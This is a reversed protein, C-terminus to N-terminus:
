RSKSSRPTNSSRPTHRGKRSIKRKTASKVAGAFLSVLLCLSIWDVFYFAVSVAENAALNVLIAKQVSAVWLCAGTFLCCSSGITSVFLHCRYGGRWGDTGSGLSSEKLMRNLGLGSLLIMFCVCAYIVALIYSGYSVIDIITSVAYADQSNPDDDTVGVAIVIAMTILFVSVIAIIFPIRFRAFPNAHMAFLQLSVWALLIHTFISLALFSPFLGLFVLGAVSNIVPKAAIFVIRFAVALLVVSHQAAHIRCARARLLRALQILLVFALASYLGLLIYDSIEAQCLEEVDLESRMVLAFVTLHECECKSGLTFLGDEEGNDNNLPVNDATLRCGSSQFVGTEENLWECTIVPQFCKSTRYMTRTVPNFPLTFTYMSGVEASANVTINFLPSIVLPPSIIISPPLNTAPTPQQIAVLTTTNKICASELGSGIIVFKCLDVTPTTPVAATPAKSTPSLTPGRSTPSSTPGQSTPSSSTPGSTPSSSPEFTSPSSSPVGTSATPALTPVPECGYTMNGSYFVEGIYGTGCQCEGASGIYVPALCNVNACTTANYSYEGRPCGCVNGGEASKKMNGLCPNACLTFNPLICRDCFLSCNSVNGVRWSSFDQSTNCFRFMEHMDKIATTSISLNSNFATANFFMYHTDQLQVASSLDLPQNFSSAYALFEHASTLSPLDAFSISSNFAQANYMFYNMNTVYPMPPFVLPQNFSTASHLFSQMSRVNTFSTFNIRSNFSYADAFMYSVEELIPTDFDTQRNYSAAFRFMRSTSVCNSLNFVIRQNFRSAYEFMGEFDRVNRTDFSPVGNFSNNLFMFRMSTVNRTNWYLSSNSRLFGHQFAYDLRANVLFKPSDSASVNLNCFGFSANSTNTFTFDGWSAIDVLWRTENDTEQFRDWANIVGEISINYRGEAPFSHTIPPSLFNGSSGDGWSITLNVNALSKFPLRVVVSGPLEWVSVFPLSCM